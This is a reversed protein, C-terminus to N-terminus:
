KPLNFMQGQQVTCYTTAWFSGGDGFQKLAASASAYNSTSGTTDLWIQIVVPGGANGGAGVYNKDAVDFSFQHLEYNGSPATPKYLQVQTLLGFPLVNATSQAVAINTDGTVIISLGGTTTLSETVTVVTGSVTSTFFTSAQNNIATNIDNAFTSAVASSSVVVVTTNVSGDGSIIQVKYVKNLVPTVPTTTITYVGATGAAYATYDYRMEASSIRKPFTYNSLPLYLLGDNLRIVGTNGAPVTSGQYVDSFLLNPTKGNLAPSNIFYPPTTSM